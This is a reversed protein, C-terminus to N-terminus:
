AVADGGGAIPEINILEINVAKKSHNYKGTYNIVKFRFRVIFRDRANKLFNRSLGTKKMDDFHFFLDPFVEASGDLDQVIFGYHKAEM